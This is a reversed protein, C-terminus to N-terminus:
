CREGERRFARVFNEQEETEIAGPLQARVWEISESGSIDFVKQAMCAAFLGTRGLGAHCHIAANQSIRAIRIVQDIIPALRDRNPIDYDVIPFHIVELKNRAYADLLDTKAHRDIEELGALVVVVSLEADLYAPLLDGSPDYSSYPMPSRYVRGPLSFPLETIM